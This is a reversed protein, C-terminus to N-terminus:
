LLEDRRTGILLTPNGGWRRCALCSRRCATPRPSADFRYTGGQLESVLTQFQDLTLTRDYYQSDGVGVAEIRVQGGVRSARLVRVPGAWFPGSLVTDPELLAVDVASL